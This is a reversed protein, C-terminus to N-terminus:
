SLEKLEKQAEQSMLFFKIFVLFCFGFKLEVKEIQYYPFPFFQDGILPTM